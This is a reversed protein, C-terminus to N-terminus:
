CLLSGHRDTIVKTADADFRCPVPDSCEGYDAEVSAVRFFVLPCVNARACRLSQQQCADSIDSIEKIDYEDLADSDFDCQEGVSSFISDRARLPVPFV